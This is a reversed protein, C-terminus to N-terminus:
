AYQIQTKANGAGRLVDLAQQLTRSRQKLVAQFDELCLWVDNMTVVADGGGACKLRKM